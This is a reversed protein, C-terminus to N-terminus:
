IMFSANSEGPHVRSSLFVTQKQHNSPDFDKKDRAMIQFGSLISNNENEEEANDANANSKDKGDKKSTTNRGSSKGAETARSSTAGAGLVSQNNIL